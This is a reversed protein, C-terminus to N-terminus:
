QQKNTWTAKSLKPMIYEAATATATAAADAHEATTIRTTHKDYYKM